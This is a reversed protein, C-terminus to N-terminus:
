TYFRTMVLGLSFLNFFGMMAVFATAVVVGGRRGAALAAAAAAAGFVPLAPLLYRGQAFPGGTEILEVYSRVNVMLALAAVTGAGLLLPPGLPGLHQRERAFTVGIMAVAVACCAALVAYVWPDFKTDLHGFNAWFGKFYVDYVPPLGAFRDEMFPLAPLYWQWTYSILDRVSFPRSQFGAPATFSESQAFLGYRAAVVIALSGAALAGLRV